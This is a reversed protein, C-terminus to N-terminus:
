QNLNGLSKRCMTTVSDSVGRPVEKNLGFPKLTTLKSVWRQEIEDLNFPGLELVTFNFGLNFLEATHFGHDLKLHEALAADDSEDFCVDGM